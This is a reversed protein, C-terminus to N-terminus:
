EGAGEVGHVFMKAAHEGLQKATAIGAQHHRALFNQVRAHLDDGLRRAFLVLRNRQERAPLFRQGSDGQHKGDEVQVGRRKAQEVLHVRRQIVGVGLAVGLQHGRHGFLRLEQEDAVVFDGHFHGLLEDAHGHLLM